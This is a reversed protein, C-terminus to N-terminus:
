EEQEVAVAWILKNGAGARHAMTFRNEEFVFYPNQLTRDYVDEQLNTSAGWSGYSDSVNFGAFRGKGDKDGHTTVPDPHAASPPKLRQGTRVELQEPFCENYTAFTYRKDSLLRRLRAAVEEVNKVTLMGYWKRDTM